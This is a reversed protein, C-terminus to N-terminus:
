IGSTHCALAPLPHRAPSSFLSTGRTCKSMVMGTTVGEVRHL